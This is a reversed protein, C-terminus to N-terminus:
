RYVGERPGESRCGSYITYYNSRTCTTTSYVSVCTYLHMCAYHLEGPLYLQINGTAPTYVVM